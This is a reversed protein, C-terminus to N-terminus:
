IGIVEKEIMAKYGNWTAEIIQLDKKMNRASVIECNELIAILHKMQNFDKVFQLMNDHDKLKGLKTGMGKEDTRYEDKIINILKTLNDDLSVEGGNQYLVYKQIAEDVKLGSYDVQVANTTLSDAELTKRLVKLFFLGAVQRYDEIGEATQASNTGNGVLGLFMNYVKNAYKRHCMGSQILGLTLKYLYHISRGSIFNYVSGPKEFMDNLSQNHIQLVENEGNKTAYQTFLTEIMLRVNERATDAMKKTIKIDEFEILDKGLDAEDQLFEKALAPGDTPDLNVLCFRNLAAAQITCQPPLNEKYNAASVIMTSEPLYNNKGGIKREFILQLLSGQVDEPAQSLEDIFLVSHFGEDENEWIEEFWDPLAHDLAPHGNHGLRGSNIQYGLVEERTRQTGILSVVRYHKREAWMKIITTKGLGPNSLFLVPLQQRFNVELAAHIMDRTENLSRSGKLQEKFKEKPESM